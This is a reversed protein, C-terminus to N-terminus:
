TGALVQCVISEVFYLYCCNWCVYPRQFIKIYDLMILALSGLYISVPHMTTNKIWVKTMSKFMSLFQTILNM